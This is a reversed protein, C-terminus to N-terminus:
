RIFIDKMLSKLVRRYEGTTEGNHTRMDDSCYHEPVHITYNIIHDSDTYTKNTHIAVIKFNNYQYKNLIYDKIKCLDGYNDNYRNGLENYIDAESSYVFLVKKKNNLIDFLRQFRRKFTQITEEYKDNINFHGFWLRDNTSVTNKEPFFDTTDQLYKLILSPTTNVYDFPFSENYLNLERLIIATPCKNGISVVYDYENRDIHTNIPHNYNM